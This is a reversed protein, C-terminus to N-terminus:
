GPCPGGPRSVPAAGTLRGAPRFTMAGAALVLATLIAAKAALVTTRRPMAALTVRIMGTSYESSIMLVARVALSPSGGRM